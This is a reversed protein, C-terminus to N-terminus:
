PAGAPPNRPLVSPREHFRQDLEVSAQPV